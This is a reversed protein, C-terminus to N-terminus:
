LPKECIRLASQGENGQEGRDGARSLGKIGLRGEITKVACTNAIGKDRLAEKRGQRM